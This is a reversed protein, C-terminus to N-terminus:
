NILINGWNTKNKKVEDLTKFQEDNRHINHRVFNDKTDCVDTPRNIIFLESIQLDAKRM